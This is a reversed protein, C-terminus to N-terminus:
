ELAVGAPVGIARAAPPARLARLARLARVRHRDRRRDHHGVGHREGEALRAPPPGLQQALEVFDVRERTRATMVSGATISRM